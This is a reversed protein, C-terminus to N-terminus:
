LHSLTVTYGIYDVSYGYVFGLSILLGSWAAGTVINIVDVRRYAPQCM